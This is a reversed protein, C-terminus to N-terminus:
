LTLTEIEEPDFGGSEIFTSKVEELWDIGYTRIIEKFEMIDHDRISFKWEGTKPHQVPRIHLLEHFLLIKKTDEPLADWLDGSLSIIYDSEGFFKVMNSSVMCSAATTKNIMPYVLVYKVIAPRIDLEKEALVQEALTEAEASLEYRKNKIQAVKTESM